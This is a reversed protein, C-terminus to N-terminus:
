PVGFSQEFSAVSVAAAGNPAVVSSFAEVRIFNLLPLHRTLNPITVTVPALPGAVYPVTVFSSSALSTGSATYYYVRYGGGAANVKAERNAAWTIKLSYPTNNTSSSVVSSSSKVASTIVPGDEKPAKCSVLLLAVLVYLNTRAVRIALHTFNGSM